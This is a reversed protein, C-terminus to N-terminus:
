LENQIWLWDKDERKSGEEYLIDFALSSKGSGSVGTVVTLKGKHNFWVSVIIAYVVYSFHWM